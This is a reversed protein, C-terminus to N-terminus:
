KKKEEKKKAKQEKKEEKKKKHEEFNSFNKYTLVQNMDVDNISNDKGFKHIIKSNVSKMADFLETESRKDVYKGRRIKRVNFPTEMNFEKLNFNELPGRYIRRYHKTM